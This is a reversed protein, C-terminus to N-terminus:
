RTRPKRSFAGPQLRCRQLVGAHRLRRQKTAWRELATLKEEALTPLVLHPFPTQWALAAADNLALHALRAPAHRTFRADRALTDHARALWSSAETRERNTNSAM